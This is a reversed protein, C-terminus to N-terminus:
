EEPKADDDGDMRAGYSCFDYPYASPLIGDWAEVYGTKAYDIKLRKERIM